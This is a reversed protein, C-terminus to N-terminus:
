GVFVDATATWLADFDVGPYFGSTSFGNAEIVKAVGHADHAADVVMLSDAGMLREAGLRAAARLDSPPTLGAPFTADFAYPAWAVPEGEVCWFRWEPQSLTQLPAIMCLTTPDPRDIQAIARIEDAWQGAPVPRGAFTKLSGDPRVFRAKGLARDLTGELGMLAGFPAYLAHQNLALDGLAGNLAHAALASEPLVVGAALRPAHHLNRQLWRAVQLSAHVLVPGAPLTAELDTLATRWDPHAAEDWVRVTWPGVHSPPTLGRLLCAHVVVTGM